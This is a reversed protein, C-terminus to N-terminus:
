VVRMIYIWNYLKRAVFYNAVHMYDSNMVSEAYGREERGSEQLRDM